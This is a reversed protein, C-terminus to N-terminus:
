WRWLEEIPVYEYDLGFRRPGFLELGRSSRWASHSPIAVLYLERGPRLSHTHLPRLDESLLAILDPPLARPSGDRERVMAIVENKVYLRFVDRRVEALVYGELFGGSDRLRTDLIRAKVAGLAGSAKCVNDLGGGTKMAYGVEICRSLTYRAVINSVERASRLGDVVLASGYKSAISRALWEYDDVSGRAIALVLELGPTAVCAPLPTLGHLIYLDQHIEPAARGVRDCDAVYIGLSHAVALSLAISTAGLEIPVLARISEGLDQAARKICATAAKFPDGGRRSGVSGVEYVSAVSGDVSELDTLYASDVGLRRLLELSSSLDGGGGCGYLAAGMLLSEIDEWVLTKMM